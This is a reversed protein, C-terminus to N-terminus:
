EIIFPSRLGYVNPDPIRWYLNHLQEKLNETATARRVWFEVARKVHNTAMEVYFTQSRGVALDMGEPVPSVSAGVPTNTSDFWIYAGVSTFRIPFKGENTITVIAVQQGALSNSYGLFSFSVRPATHPALSTHAVFGLCILLLLALGAIYFRPRMFLEDLTAGSGRPWQRLFSCFADVADAGPAQAM